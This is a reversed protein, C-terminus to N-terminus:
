KWDKLQEGRVVSDVLKHLQDFSLTLYVSGWDNQSAYINVEKSDYDIEIDTGDPNVWESM